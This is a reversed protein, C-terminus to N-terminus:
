PCPCTIQDTLLVFTGLGKPDYDLKKVWGKLDGVEIYSRRNENVIDFDQKCMPTTFELLYPIRDGDPPIDACAMLEDNTKFEGDGFLASVNVSAGSTQVQFSLSVEVYDGPILEWLPTSVQLTGAYISTNSLTQQVLQFAQFKLVNTPSYAEIKFLLDFTITENPLLVFSSFTFFRSAFFSYAGPVQAQYRTKLNACPSGPVEQIDGSNALNLIGSLSDTDLQFYFMKGAASIPTTDVLFAQLDCTLPGPTVVENFVRFSADSM